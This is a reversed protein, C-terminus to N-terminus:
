RSLSSYYDKKYLTTLNDLEAKRHMLAFIAQDANNARVQCEVVKEYFEGVLEDEMVLMDVARESFKMTSPFNKRVELEKRRKHKEYRYTALLLDEKAQALEKSYYAYISSHAECEEDLRSKDISMDAAFNEGITRLM